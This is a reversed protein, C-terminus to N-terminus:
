IVEGLRKQLTRVADSFSASSKYPQDPHRAKFLGFAHAFSQWEGDERLRACFGKAVWPWERGRRKKGFFADRLSTYAIAVDTPSVRPHRVSLTIVGRQPEYRAGVWPIRPLENCLLF